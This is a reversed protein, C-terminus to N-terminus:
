DVFTAGDPNVPHVTMIGLATSVYVPDGDDGDVGLQERLAQYDAMPVLVQKFCDWRGAKKHEMAKLMIREVVSLWLPRPAEVVEFTFEGLPQFPRLPDFSWPFSPPLKPNSM